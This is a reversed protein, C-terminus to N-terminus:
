KMFMVVPRHDSGTSRYEPVCVEPKYVMVTDVDDFLENTILMHDLHSPWSPYSFNSSSGTAIHMDAFRYNAKDLYFNSFMQNSYTSIADNFDGLVVVADDPHNTDIHEKLLRAAEKRRDKSTQDGMAKLHLNILYLEKGSPKHRVKIQFPPRPFAYSNTTYIAKTESSIVEIESEKYIYALSMNGSPSTTYLGKWGKLQNTLQTISGKSSIEQLAIVDVNIRSVLAGVMQVTSFGNIPFEQLNMTAIQLKDNSAPTFCYEFPNNTEADEKKSCSSIVVLMMLMLVKYSIKM